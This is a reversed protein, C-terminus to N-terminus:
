AFYVTFCLGFLLGILSRQAGSTSNNSASGISSNDKTDVTPTPLPAPAPAPAPAPPAIGTYALGATCENFVREATSSINRPDAILYSSAIYCDLGLAKFTLECGNTCVQGIRLTGACDSPKVDPNSLEAISINKCPPFQKLSNAFDEPDIEGIDPVGIPKNDPGVVRGRYDVHILRGDKCQCAHTVM